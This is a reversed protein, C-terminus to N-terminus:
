LQITGTMVLLGLILLGIIGGIVPLCVWIAMLTVGGKVIGHAIENSDTTTSRGGNSQPASLPKETPILMDGEQWEEKFFKERALTGEAICTYPQGNKYVIDTEPDYGYIM